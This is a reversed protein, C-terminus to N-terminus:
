ALKGSGRKGKSGSGESSKMQGGLIGAADNSAANREPDSLCEDWFNKLVRNLEPNRIPNPTILKAIAIQVGIAKKLEPSELKTLFEEFAKLM